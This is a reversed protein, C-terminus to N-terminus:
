LLTCCLTDDMIVEDPSHVPKGLRVVEDFLGDVNTAFKATVPYYIKGLIREMERVKHFPINWPLDMKNAVLVFPLNKKDEKKYLDLNTLSDFDNVAFVLVLVNCYELAEQRLRAETGVQWGSLDIIELKVGNWQAEFYDEITSDTDELFFHHLFQNIITTKGVKPAGIFGVRVRDM